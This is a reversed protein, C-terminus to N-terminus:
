ILQILKSMKIKGCNHCFTAAGTLSTGCYPCYKVDSMKNGGVKFVKGKFCELMINPLNDIDKRFCLRKQIYVMCLQLFYLEKIM